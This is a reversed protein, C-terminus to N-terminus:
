SRFWATGGTTPESLPLISAPAALPEAAADGLVRDVYRQTEAYPPVGGYRDVAGPGANYAAVALRADGGFRDLQAKLYRTGGDISQAPDLPNTVGLGAATGPMLQMLGLAGAPSTASPNFGSENKVVARILSADVGYRNSAALIEAAYPTSDSTVGPSAAGDAGLAQGLQQAFTPAGTAVATPVPTPLRGGLQVQIDAVRSLTSDLSM